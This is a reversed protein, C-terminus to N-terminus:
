RVLVARAGGLHANGSVYGIGGRHKLVYGIVAQDSPFEPPPVGRGSFIRQQWYSKVAAVSRQLVRESFKERVRSDSAQDVPKLSEGGPWESKRKLFADQLFDRSLSSAPNEPHVVIVFEPATDDALVDGLALLCALVGGSQLLRRRATDFPPPSPM